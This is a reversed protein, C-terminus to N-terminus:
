RGGLAERLREIAPADVRTPRGQYESPQPFKRGDNENLVDDMMKLLDQRDSGERPFVLLCENPHFDFTESVNAIYAWLPDLRQNDWKIRNEPPYQDKLNGNLAERELFQEMSIINLGRQNANIAAIDYFDSFSVVKRGNADRLGHTLQRRPPMVLTRGMAHAMIMVNEFGLRMNNFGSGDMEFTLYKTKWFNNSGDRSQEQSKPSYFPSMFVTDSPIDRWYVVENTDQQSPGGNAECNLKSVPYYNTSSMILNNSPVLNLSTLSSSDYLGNGRVNLSELLEEALRFPNALSSESKIRSSLDDSGDLTHKATNSLFGEDVLSSKPNDHHPSLFDADSASTKPVDAINRLSNSREFATLEDSKSSFVEALGTRSQSSRLNSGYSSGVSNSSSLGAHDAAGLSETQSSLNNFPSMFKDNSDGMDNLGLLKSADSGSKSTVSSASDFIPNGLFDYSQIAGGYVKKDSGVSSDILNGDIGYKEYNGGLKITTGLGHHKETSGVLNLRGSHGVHIPNGLFDYGTVGDSSAEPFDFGGMLSSDSVPKVVVGDSSTSFELDVTYIIRLSHYLILSWLLQRIKKRMPTRKYREWQECIKSRKEKSEYQKCQDNVIPAQAEDDDSKHFRHRTTNVHPESSM